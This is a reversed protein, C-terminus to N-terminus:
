NTEDLDEQSFLNILDFDGLTSLEQIGQLKLVGPADRWGHSLTSM